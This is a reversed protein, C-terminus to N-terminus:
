YFTINLDQTTQGTIDCEATTEGQGDKVKYRIRTLDHKELTSAIEDTEMATSNDLMNGNGDYVNVEQLGLAETNPETDMRQQLNSCISRLKVRRDETSSFFETSNQSSVTEIRYEGASKDVTFVTNQETDEIKVVQSSYSSTVDESDGGICGSAILTLAIVAFFSKRM